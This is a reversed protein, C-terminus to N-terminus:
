SIGFINKFYKGPIGGRFHIKVIKFFLELTLLADSGAQHQIGKRLIEMEQGLRQLSYNKLDDLENIM